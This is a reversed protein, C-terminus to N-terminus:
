KDLIAGLIPTLVPFLLLGPCSFVPSDSPFGNPLNVPYPSAIAVPLLVLPIINLYVFVNLQVCNTLLSVCSQYVRIHLLLHYWSSNLIM